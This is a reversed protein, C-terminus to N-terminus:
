VDAVAAAALPADVAMLPPAVVVAVADTAAAVGVAAVSSVDGRAGRDVLPITASTVANGDNFSSVGGDM